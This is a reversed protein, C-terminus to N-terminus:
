LDLQSTRESRPTKATQWYQDKISFGDIAASLYRTPIEAFAKGDCDYKFVVNMMDANCARPGIGHIRHATDSMQDWTYLGRYQYQHDRFLILFHTSDSKALEALVNQKYGNHVAGAFMSYELAEIIINCNSKPSPKSFEEVVPNLLSFEDVEPNPKSFVEVEADLMSIEEVEPNPKSFVEVEANLMSFEEVEPNPKSFEEVEPNPKSFVEVEANLMSFEEVEPNPKSFEEVEPNPKSFEEVEANLKSIEEVEPNLKSFVEVEPNPKSFVEVEPNPKSFEEVNPNPQLAATYLQESQEIDKCSRKLSSRKDKIYTYASRLIIFFWCQLVFSCVCIVLFVFAEMKLEDGHFYGSNAIRRQQVSLGSIAYGITLILGTVSYILAPILFGHREINIGIWLSGLVPIAVLPSLGLFALLLYYAMESRLDSVRLEMITYSSMVAYLVAVITYISAVIKVGTMVHFGCCCLYQPDNPDFRPRVQSM